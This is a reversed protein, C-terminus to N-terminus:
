KAVGVGAFYDKFAGVEIALVGGREVLEVPPWFKRTVKAVLGPYSAVGELETVGWPHRLIVYQKREQPAAWGLVTYAMNAVLTCGRFKDGTPHTFAVMPFITRLNVCHTRVLGLLDQERRSFTMFYQPDRNTLQAMAKVPDGHSTQTLDPHPKSSHGSKSIWAAFAKEYLAPWIEGEDSSRAYILMESSSNVPVEASVTVTSTPADNQGGKSYLKISLVHCPKSSDDKSNSAASSLLNCHTIASPDSWSVAMLAAILWSNGTAGQVPNNFKTADQHYLSGIDMWTSNPPTWEKDKKDSSRFRTALERLTATMESNSLTKGIDQSEITLRLNGNSLVAHKVVMSPLDKVGMNKLDSLRRVRSFDPTILDRETITHIDDSDIPEAWEERESLKIGAYLISNFSMDFLEAYDTQLISALIRTSSADNWDLKRGLIAEVLAFPNIAGIQLSKPAEDPQEPKYAATTM